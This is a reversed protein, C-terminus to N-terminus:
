PFCGHALIKKKKKVEKRGSRLSKLAGLPRVPCKLLFIKYTYSRMDHMSKALFMQVPETLAPVRRNNVAADGTSQLAAAM